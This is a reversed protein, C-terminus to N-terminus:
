DVAGSPEVAGGAEILENLLKLFKEKAPASLCETTREQARFAGSRMRSLITKGRPTLTVIKQRKDLRGPTRRILGNAELRAVVNALTARDVGAAESLRAQDLKPQQAVTSMIGYQVPTVDFAACEEAFLATHIQHLRRILSGTRQFPHLDYSDPIMNVVVGDM